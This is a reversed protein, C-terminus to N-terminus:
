ASAGEARRRDARRHVLTYVAPVLLLTIPTSGVLGGIVARALPAQADAGEGVGLALPLLGLITTITTMLIPRLRRRGAERVAAWADLGEGRLRGAQDVLLIANNVVIGGLMITGIYSQLNLTTDTLYLTVLVGVAAVPVSLMVILPDVFSEYQGALVMYVLSIALILALMLETFAEQQAEYDGAVRVTYGSPPSLDALRAEVEEAVDGLSRGSVNAQVTVLRRQDKRDILLPGRGAEVTVLNSLAVQAGAPTVLRLDLLQDLPLLEADELRALIRYANGQTRYEGAQLGAVAGQLATTVDRVTLGVDAVKARDIRVVQQPVGPDRNTDVDTVGPVEAVAAAAEAALREMVALDFGQIEVTIGREGGLIRQLLFQGQPARVRIKMGAILGELRDRLEAAIAVNSRDREGSPPLSMQIQGQSAEDPRRGSAGVNVVSTVVEPVAAKVVAEMQRTQRDVISLRTGIEMEGTIRVEGEDSPPLYESGILPYLLLSGGLLLAATLATILPHGLAGRLLRLYGGTLAELSGQAAQVWRGTEAEAPMLRAALTPVLTMAVLLASLLSFVVVFALDQFLAGSVGKVFALPLFIVLTTVTSAAIAPGVERAGEIAADLPREGLEDRRRYINEIVVISSDVMMGVGLALGGLTMLNLTLGGFYMLAFTAVLSLPIALGIVLASRLSALLLVLVAVALLGGYMVSQAVNKISREIFNGQNIVPVIEIQTLEANIAEVEALVRKAIEVTNADAQKRIALRIGREGNVRVLQTLREYTDKVEAVQGVTIAAGGRTTIITRRIDDLSGFEAPARLVMEYRGQELQGAPLDLNADQLAQRIEALTLGLAQIRPLSLAVRVERTYGGWLDVQAVNPIQSFRHRVQDELLTTLAVPELKSSVGLVLVPFGSIDFKRLNPRTIDEPLEDLEDELTARVDMAIADLDTGWVFTIEINSVGEASQSTIEEVGPVTAVIEEIIQTVLREMVEPSAGSYETRVSLTPLEIEPMLDIQTRSLAVLGVLVVMLTLMATLVPRRASFGPLSM